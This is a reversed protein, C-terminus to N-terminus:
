DNFEENVKLSTDKLTPFNFDNRSFPLVNEKREKAIEYITRRIGGCHVIGTKNSLSAKLIKPAIKDVYDKSSWQDIFAKEYPFTKGFFSTRIILSNDYMSAIIEAAAKSKAYKTLPKIYDETEYNGKNGDFVHETSIHVLKINLEQCCFILNCTGVINVDICAKLNSESAKVDTYAACHIVLDFSNNKFYDELQTKNCIDLEKSSPKYLNYKYPELLSVLEKGLTGNAGTIFINM